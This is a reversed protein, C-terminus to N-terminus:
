TNRSSTGIKPKELRDILIFINLPSFHFLCQISFSFLVVVFLFTQICSILAVALFFFLLMFATPKGECNVRAAGAECKIHINWFFTIRVLGSCQWSVYELSSFLFSPLFSRFFPTQKARCAKKKSEKAKTCWLEVAYKRNIFYSYKQEKSKPLRYAQKNNRKWIM